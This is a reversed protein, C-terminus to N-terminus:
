DTLAALLLDVTERGLARDLTAWSPDVDRSFVLKRHQRDRAAIEPASTLEVADSRLLAVWHRFYREIFGMATGLLEPEVTYNAMWPSQLARQRLPPNSEVFRADADLESRIETLPTFCRDLYALAVGLDRKPLLDVHFSVKPGGRVSDIMFHPVPSEPATFVTVSHAEFGRPPQSAAPSGPLDVPPLSDVSFHSTVIKQIRGRGRYVRLEGVRQGNRLLDRWAPSDPAIDVCGLEEILKSVIRTCVAEPDLRREPAQTVITRLGPREHLM